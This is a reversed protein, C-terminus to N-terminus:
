CSSGVLEHPGFLRLDAFIAERTRIEHLVSTGELPLAKSASRPQFQLGAKDFDSHMSPLRRLHLDDAARFDLNIELSNPVLQGISELQESCEVTPPGSEEIPQSPFGVEKSILCDQAEFSVVPVSSAQPIMASNAIPPQLNSTRPDVPVTPVPVSKPM